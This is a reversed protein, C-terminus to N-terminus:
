RVVRFTRDELRDIHLSHSWPPGVIPNIIQPTIDISSEILDIAPEILDIAPEFTNFGAKISDLLRDDAQVASDTIQVAGDTVQVAGDAAWLAGHSPERHHEDNRQDAQAGGLQAQDQSM